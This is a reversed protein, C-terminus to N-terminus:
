GLNQRENTHQFVVVLAPSLPSRPEGEAPVAAGSDGGPKAPEGCLLGRSNGGRMYVRRNLRRCRYRKATAFHLLELFRHTPYELLTAACQLKSAAPDLLSHTEKSVGSSEPGKTLDAHRHFHTHSLHHWCLPVRM